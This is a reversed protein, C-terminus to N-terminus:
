RFAPPTNEVTLASGTSFDTPPKPTVSSVDWGSIDQNFLTANQFMSTMDLVSSVNWANLPKDFSTANQFMASMNLVSSTNWSGIDQNFATAGSFMSSMDTVVSTNWSNLPQDFASANRFMASMDLVSSVNWANLPQDFSTANEFMYIMYQVSSVDWSSLPQDFATAFYFMASMNTVASTNWANLPKDFSTANQFMYIMNTVASTNWSGIDQNFATADQFMSTMDTVASTNWSGIDQNFLTANQFMASMNLVSSTNWSGIDQNFATAFYFMFAMNTVKSTNWSSVNGNFATCNQFVSSMNEVMSTNWSNLSQNFRIARSFIGGMNTVNSVDWSDISSSDGNNFQNAGRFMLFMDTVNSTVWSGINQNFAYNASSNLNYFMRSMNIVQATNWSGIAQNFLSANEFMQSMNTVNSTDWSSIDSNFTTATRFMSSMNTMLTTVIRNFPIVGATSHTFPTSAGSTGKAYANIKNISDQSNRMVAYVVNNADTVFFPNQSGSPISGVFKYAGNSALTLSPELVPELVTFANSVSVAAAFVGDSSAAQSVTITADGPGEITVVGNSNVTAVDPDSSSFTYTGGSISSVDLEFPEDSPTKDPIDQVTIVPVVKNVQLTLSVPTAAAAYVNDSSVGQSVTIDTTGGTHLNVLGSSSNISAFQPHSSSFSFLGTTNNSTITVLSSLLFDADLTNKTLSTQSLSLNTPIQRPVFNSNGPTIIIEDPVLNIDDYRTVIAYNFITGQPKTNFASILSSTNIQHSGTMGSLASPPISEEFSQVNPPSGTSVRLKLETIPSPFSM